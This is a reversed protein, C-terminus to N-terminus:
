HKPVTIVRQTRTVCLSCMKCDMACPVSDTAGDVTDEVRFENHSHNFSMEESFNMTLNKHLKKTTAETFLDLRHTYSYVPVNVLSAVRSLKKVCDMSHFDGSENVRIADIYPRKKITNNIAHAINEASSNLWMDEQRHRYPLTAPYIGCEAKLAYCSGDGNMGGMPCLGLKDSPCTTASGMNFIMTTTPIKRNGLVAEFIIHNKMEVKIAVNSKPAKRM